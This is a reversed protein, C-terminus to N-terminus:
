TKKRYNTKFLKENYRIKTKLFGTFYNFNIELNELHSSPFIYFQKKLNELIIVTLIAYLSYNWM